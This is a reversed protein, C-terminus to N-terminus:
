HCFNLLLMIKWYLTSPKDRTRVRKQPKMERQKDQQQATERESDQSKSPTKQLNPQSIHVKYHICRNSGDEEVFRNLPNILYSKVWFPDRVRLRDQAMAECVVKLIHNRDADSKWQCEAIIVLRKSPMAYQEPSKENQDSLALHRPEAVFGFSWFNELKARLSIVLAGADFIVVADCDYCALNRHEM